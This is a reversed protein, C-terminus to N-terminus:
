IKNVSKLDVINGGSVISICPRLQDIVDVIDNITTTVEDATTDIRQLLLANNDDINTVSYLGSKYDITDESLLIITNLIVNDHLYTNKKIMINDNELMDTIEYVFFYSTTVVNEIAIFQGIALSDISDQSLKPLLQSSNITFKDNSNPTGIDLYKICYRIIDKPANVSTTHQLETIKKARANRAMLVTTLAYNPSM